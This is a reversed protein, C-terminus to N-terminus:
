RLFTLFAKNKLTGECDIQSLYIFFFFSFSLFREGKRYGSGICYGAFLTYGYSVLHFIILPLWFPINVRLKMFFVM